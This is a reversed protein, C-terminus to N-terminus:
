SSLSTGNQYHKILEYTDELFENLKNEDLITTYYALEYLGAGKRQILEKMDIEPKDLEIAKKFLPEVLAKIKPIQRNTIFWKYDQKCEPNELLKGYMYVLSQMQILLAFNLIGYEEKDNM